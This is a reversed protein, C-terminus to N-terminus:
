GLIEQKRKAYLDTFSLTQKVTLKRIAPGNAEAFQELAALETLRDLAERIEALIASGKKGKPDIAPVCPAEVPTDQATQPADDAATEGASDAVPAETGSASEPEFDPIQDSLDDALGSLFSRDPCWATLAADNAEIFTNLAEPGCCTEIALDYFVQTFDETEAVPVQQGGPLLIARLVAGDASTGPAPDTADEPASGDTEAAHEKGAPDAKEPIAEPPIGSERRRAPPPVDAQVAKRHIAPKNRERIDRLLLKYMHEMMADGDDFARRFVRGITALAERKADTVAGKEATRRASNIAYTNGTKEIRLNDYSVGVGSYTRTRGNALEITIDVTARAYFVRGAADDAPMNQHTTGLPAIEETDFELDRVSISYQGEFLLEFMTWVVEFDLLILIAEHHSNSGADWRRSPKLYHAAIPAPTSLIRKQKRTWGDHLIDLDGPEETEFLEQMAKKGGRRDTPVKLERLSIIEGNDDFVPEYHAKSLLERQTDLRLINTM